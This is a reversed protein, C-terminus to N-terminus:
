LVDIDIAPVYRTRIGTNRASSYQEWSTVTDADILIKQWGSFKPEKGDCPIPEYGQHLYHQRAILKDKCITAFINSNDTNHITSSLM